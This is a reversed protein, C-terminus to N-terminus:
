FLHLDTSGQPSVPPDSPPPGSHLISRTNSLRVAAGVRTVQDPTLSVDTLQGALGQTLTALDHLGQNIRDLSQLECILMDPLSDNDALVSSVAVELSATQTAFGELQAALRRLFPDLPLASASEM